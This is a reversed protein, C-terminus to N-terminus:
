LVAAGRSIQIEKNANCTMRAAPSNLFDNAAHSHREAVCSKCSTPKLVLSSCIRVAQLEAEEYVCFTAFPSHRAIILGSTVCLFSILSVNDEMAGCGPNNERRPGQATRQAASENKRESQLRCKLVIQFGHRRRLIDFAKAGGPAGVRRENSETRPLLILDSRLCWFHINSM